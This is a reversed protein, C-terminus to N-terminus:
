TAPKATLRNKDLGYFARREEDRRMQDQQEQDAKLGAPGRWWDGTGEFPSRHINSMAYLSPDVTERIPWLTRDSQDFDPLVCTKMISPTAISFGGLNRAALEIPRLRRPEGALAMQNIESISADHVACDRFLKALKTSCEFYERVFREALEAEDAKKALHAEYWRQHQERVYAADLHRQLPQLSARLRAARVEARQRDGFPVAPDDTAKIPDYLEQEAQAAALDAQEAGAECERMLAVISVSAAQQDNLCDTIRQFLTDAPQKSDEELPKKDNIRSLRSMAAIREHSAKILM